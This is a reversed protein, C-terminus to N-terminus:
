VREMDYWNFGVNVDIKLPVELDAAEEMCEHLIKIVGAIEQPPVELILEDHVQLLLQAKLKNHHLRSQVKLMARKIIDAASGQIPTNVATREAFSRLNFNKSNIDKIYRKRGMMTTSIGSTRADAIAQDIWAKVGSYRAFYNEIYAKAEARSIGLEKSLGYDTQGYIIGFNVAKANRRMEKTVEEMPVGFVESATRRHIDEDNMFSEVLVPDKSMHALIRLEIQSYDAAVLVNGPISPVFAKRIRKGEETKIPINQLNPETSSLRGTATITQNFTTHVKGTEPRVLKLIGEIYTSKLKTLQRYALIDKVFEHEEALTDLVEADTSYGTKTKKIVPLGMKEFLIVGLQKSSNLNFEEGAAEYLKQALEEIRGSLEVGMAELYATDIRVGELEMIALVQTLPLEISTYLDTLKEQELKEIFFDSLVYIGKLLGYLHEEADDPLTVDFYQALMADLSLDKSEPNFLYAFLQGDWFLSEVLIKEKEFHIFVKKADDTLILVRKDEMWPKLVAAYASFDDGCEILYPTDNIMIGFSTVRSDRANGATTNLILSISMPPMGNILQQFSELDTIKEGKKVSMGPAMDEMDELMGEVPMETWDTPEPPYMSTLENLLSRLELEKYLATLLPVDFAHRALTEENFDLPVQCFITALEKSMFAQAENERLKDGLKKGNFDDLHQYLEEVTGYQHLLKLATKEGVGPVGPINDSADGMLGKLDRIQDPVLDYEEKLAAADYKALESIGKKTLFVSTKDSILQLSDKDGTIIISHIDQGEAWRVMSGIVDDGEYGEKEYIAINMARLVDKILDMQGRLEEPMGKRQAKYDAYQEHRFVKRSVDFAVALYDPQEQKIIRMLMNTFGYVANTIVGKSNSLIPIAYFARNALSNGDIVILKKM